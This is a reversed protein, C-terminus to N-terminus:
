TWFCLITQYHRNSKIITRATDGTEDFDCGSNDIPVGITTKIPVTVGVEDGKMGKIELDIAAPIAIQNFLEIEMIFDMFKVDSFGDPIGIPPSEAVPFELSETIAAIYDLNLNRFGIENFVVGLTIQNNIVNITFDGDVMSIIIKCVISDIPTLDTFSADPSQNVGVM